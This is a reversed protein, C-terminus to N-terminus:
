KEKSFKELKQLILSMQSAFGITEEATARANHTNMKSAAKDDIFFRQTFIYKALLGQLKDWLKRLFTYFYIM